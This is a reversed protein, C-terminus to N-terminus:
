QIRTLLIWETIRLDRRFRHSYSSTLIHKQKSLLCLKSPVPEAGTPNYVDLFAASLDAHQKHYWDSVIITYEEDYGHFEKVPHILFPARLGDVYQGQM